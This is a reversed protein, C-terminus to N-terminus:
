GSGRETCFHRFDRVARRYKSECRSRRIVELRQLPLGAVYDSVLVELDVTLLQEDSYVERLDNIKDEIHRGGRESIRNCDMEWQVFESRERAVGSSSRSIWPRVRDDSIM